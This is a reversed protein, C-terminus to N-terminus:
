PEEAASDPVPEAKKKVEANSVLNFTLEKVRGLRNRWFSVEVKLDSFERNTYKNPVIEKMRPKYRIGKEAFAKLQEESPPTGIQEKKSLMITYTGPYLGLDVGSKLVAKGETDTTGAADRAETSEKTPLVAVAAGELPKGDLTVTIQM